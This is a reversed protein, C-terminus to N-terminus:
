IDLRGDNADTTTRHLEARRCDGACRNRNMHRHAIASLTDPKHREAAIWPPLLPGVQDQSVSVPEM